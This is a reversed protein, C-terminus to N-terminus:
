ILHSSLSTGDVTWTITSVYDRAGVASAAYFAGQSAEGFITAGPGGLSLNGSNLNSNSSLISNINAQSPVETAFAYANHSGSDFGAVASIQAQSFATASSGIQAHADAIVNTVVGGNGTTTTAQAAGSSGTGTATAKALQGQATNATAHVNAAGQT